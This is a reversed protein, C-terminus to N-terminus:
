QREAAASFIQINQKRATFRIHALVNFTSPPRDFIILPHTGSTLSHAITDVGDLATAPWHWRCSRAFFFAATDVESLDAVFAFPSAQLTSSALAAKSAKQLAFLLDQLPEVLEQLPL